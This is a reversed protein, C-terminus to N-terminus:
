VKIKFVAKEVLSTTKNILKGLHLDQPFVLAFMNDNLIIKTFEDVEYKELDKDPNYSSTVKVNPENKNIYGFFENGSLVIQIDIYNLHGEFYCEELGRSNYSERILYVEKGDIEYKGPKIDFLDNSSIYDLVTKINRNVSEYLKLNEIKDVIM